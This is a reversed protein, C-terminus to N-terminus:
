VSTDLNISDDEAARQNEVIETKPAKEMQTRVDTPVRAQFPSNRAEYKKYCMIGVGAVTVLLAVLGVGIFIKNEETNIVSDSPKARIEPFTYNDSRLDPKGPWLLYVTAGSTNLTATKIYSLRYINSTLMECSCADRIRQRTICSGDSPEFGMCGKHSVGDITTYYFQPGDIGKFSHVSNSGSVEFQIFTRDEEAVIFGKNENSSSQM